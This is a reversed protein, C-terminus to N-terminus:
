PEQDVVSDLQKRFAAYDVVPLQFLRELQARPVFTRRAKRLRETVPRGNYREAWRRREEPTRDRRKGDAGILGAEHAAIHEDLKVIHRWCLPCKKYGRRELGQHSWPTPERRRRIAVTLVERNRSTIGIRIELGDVDVTRYKSSQEAGNRPCGRRSPRRCRRTSRPRAGGFSTLNVVSGAKGRDVLINAFRHTTLYVSRLNSRIVEDWLSPGMELLHGKPDSWAANNVLVDVTGFAKLTEDFLRDVEREDGVDAAVAIAEGRGQTIEDVIPGLRGQDRKGHVVVRAGEKAMRLATAKGIGRSSGTVVAVKGDLRM